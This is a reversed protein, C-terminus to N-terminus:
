NYFITTELAGTTIGKNQELDEFSAAFFVICGVFKWYAVNLPDHPGPRYAEQRGLRVLVCPAPSIEAWIGYVEGGNFLFEIEDSEIRVKKPV